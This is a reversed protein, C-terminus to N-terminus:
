KKKEIEKKELVLQEKELKIKRADDSPQTYSINLSSIKEILKSLNKEKQDFNNM